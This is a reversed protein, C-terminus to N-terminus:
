SASSADALDVQYMVYRRYIEEASVDELESVQEEAFDAMSLIQADDWGRPDYQSRPITALWERLKVESPRLPAREPSPARPAVKVEVMPARPPPWPPPVAPTACPGPVFGSSVNPLRHTSEVLPVWISPRSGVAQSDPSLRQRPTAWQTARVTQAPRSQPVSFTARDTVAWPSACRSAAQRTASFPPAAAPPGAARAVQVQASSYHASAPASSPPYGYGPTNVMPPKVVAAKSGRLSGSEQRVVQPPGARGRMSPRGTQPPPPSGSRERVMAAHAPRQQLAARRFLPPQLIVRSTSPAPPPALSPQAIPISATQLAPAPCPKVSAALTVVSAGKSPPPQHRSPETHVRSTHGNFDQPIFETSAAAAVTHSVLFGPPAPTLMGRNQAQFTPGAM